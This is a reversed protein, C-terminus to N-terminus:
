DETIGHDMFDLAIAVVSLFIIVYGTYNLPFPFKDAIKTLQILGGVVASVAAATTRSM